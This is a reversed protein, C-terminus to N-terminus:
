GDRLEDSSSPVITLGTDRQLDRFDYTELVAGADDVLRVADPVPNKGDGLLEPKAQMTTGDAEFFGALYQKLRERHAGGVASADDHWPTEALVTPEGVSGAQLTQLRM